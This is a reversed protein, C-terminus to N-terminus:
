SITILDEVKTVGPAAWAAHEAEDREAWSRVYGHLTVTGDSTEVKIHSADIEANRRLANEVKLQVDVASVKPTVVIDNFVGKVGKLARVAREAEEKQYGWETTGQLTIQGDTVQVKVTDPVSYNWELHTMATRAIDEDTRTESFPLEVKIESAVAKVKSVRMAAREAAWKEYYADVQGDLEVVGNKVSVGIQEAHVSPDWRLEQEVDSKLQEDNKM